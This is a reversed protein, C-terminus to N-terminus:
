RSVHNKRVSRCAALLSSLHKPKQTGESAHSLEEYVHRAERIVDSGVLEATSEALQRSVAAVASWDEATTAFFLREIEDLQSDIVSEVRKSNALLQANIQGFNPLSTYQGTDM